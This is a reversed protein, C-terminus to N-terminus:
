LESACAPCITENGIIPQECVSCTQELDTGCEECYLARGPADCFPCVPQKGRVPVANSLDFFDPRRPVEPVATSTAYKDIWSRLSPDNGVSAVTKALRPHTLREESRNLEWFVSQISKTGDTRDRLEIDLTALVRCGKKYDTYPSPWRDPEALVAQADKSTLVVNHFDAYTALRQRYALLAAFYNASGEILWKTSETYNLAQRTHVYEHIWTSHATDVHQNDKVWFGSMGSQLGAIGRSMEGAPVAVALTEEDRAGIVLDESAHRLTRRVAHTTPSLSAAEPIIFRIVQQSGRVGRERFPGVFVVYGDSSAAVDADVEVEEIVTVPSTASWRETVSPKQTIAWSGTDLFSYGGLRSSERDVEQEFTIAPSITNEDWEFTRGNGTFGVLDPNTADQDITITLEEVKEPLTYAVTVEISAETQRLLDFEYEKTIIEDTTM